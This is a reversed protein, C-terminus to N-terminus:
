RSAATPTAELLADVLEGFATLLEQAGADGRALALCAETLAGFLLVALPRGATPPLLGAAVLGRVGSEMSALGVRSDIAHWEALGLVAPADTLAIRRYDPQSARDLCARAGGLLARRPDPPGAGAAVAAAARVHADFERELDVFVARFLDTKDRFHHYLAGRTVGAERVVETTTTGAYGRETFLARAADLLARRTEAAESATRRAV